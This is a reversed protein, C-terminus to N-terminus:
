ENLYEIREVQMKNSFADRYVVIQMKQESLIPDIYKAVTGDANLKVDFQNYAAVRTTEEGANKYPVGAVDKVAQACAIVTFYNQRCTILEVVKGVAEEEAKDNNKNSGSIGHITGFVQGINTFVHPNDTTGAERWDSVAAAATTASVTSADAFLAKLVDPEMTNINVKGRRILGSATRFIDMIAADSGAEDASSAAWLRLSQLPIYSHIRGLESLRQIPGNKVEIDGYPTGAYGGNTITGIDAVAGEESGALDTTNPYVTWYRLFDPDNSSRDNMMPDLSRASVYFNADGYSVGTQSWNCFFSGNAPFDDVKEGATNYLEIKDVQMLNVTYWNLPPETSQDFADAIEVWECCEFDASYRVTGGNATGVETMSVSPIDLNLIESKGTATTVLAQCKMRLTGPTPAGSDAATM